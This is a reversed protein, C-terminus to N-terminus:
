EEDEEKFAWPNTCTYEEDPEIRFVIQCAVDLAAHDDNDFRHENDEMADALLSVARELAWRGNVKKEKMKEMTEKGICIM